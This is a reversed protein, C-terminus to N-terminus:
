GFALRGLIERVVNRKTYDKPIIQGETVDIIPIHMRRYMNEMPKTYDEVKVIQDGYVHYMKKLSWHTVRKSYAEDSFDIIIFYVKEEKEERKSWFM